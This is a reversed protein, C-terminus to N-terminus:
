RSSSCTLTLRATIATAPGTAVALHRHGVVGPADGLAVQRGLQAASLAPQDVVEFRQRVGQRRQRRVVERREPRRALGGRVAVHRHHAGAGAEARRRHDAVGAALRHQDAFAAVAGERRRVRQFGLDPLPERRAEGAVHLDLVQEGPRTQHVQAAREALDLALGGAELRRVGDGVRRLRAIRAREGDGVPEHRDEARDGAVERHDVARAAADEDGAADRLADERRPPAANRM